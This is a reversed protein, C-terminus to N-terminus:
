PEKVADQAFVPFAKIYSSLDFYCFLTHKRVAQAGPKHWFKVLKM